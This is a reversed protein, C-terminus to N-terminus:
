IAKVVVVTADDADRAFDRHLVSAILSPHRNTLGPHRNLNWRTSLGDTTAIFVSGPIWRAEGPRVARMNYGVTGDMSLLHQASDGTHVVSVINGIGAFSLVANAPEFKAIAMVAGRTAKIGSHVDRMVDAPFAVPDAAMFVDVARRSAEAALPGHGLGDLLTVWMSDPTHRVAWADGSIDQGLKPTSRAGVQFPSVKAAPKDAVRAFLATGNGTVSYIDFLASHRAITGLGAGLSGGTSFGDSCAAALNVIGPGRDLAIVDLSSAGGEEASKLVIEGHGAYKLINTAAETVILAADAQSKEPLGLSQAMQVARRRADAVGSKDALTLTTEM